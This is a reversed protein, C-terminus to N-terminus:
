KVTGKIVLVKKISADNFNVTISKSFAGMNAANYTVKVASSKGPMIPEKSYDSATCGCSTVVNSVLIPENGHNTFTFSVSVPKAQVIEGFDYNEKEWSVFASVPSDIKVTMTKVIAPAPTFALLAFVAISLVTITKIMKLM